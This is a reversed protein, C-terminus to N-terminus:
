CQQNIDLTEFYVDMTRNFADLGIESNFFLSYYSSGVIIDMFPYNLSAIWSCATM